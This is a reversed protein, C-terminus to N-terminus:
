SIPERFIAFHIISWIIISEIGGGVIFVFVGVGFIFRRIVVGGGRRYLSSIQRLGGIYVTTFIVAMVYAPLPVAAFDVSTPQVNMELTAM